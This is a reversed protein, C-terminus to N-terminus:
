HPLGFVFYGACMLALVVGGPHISRWKGCAVKMVPHLILGKTLSPEIKKKDTEHLHTSILLPLWRRERYHNWLEDDTPEKIEKVLTKARELRARGWDIVFQRDAKEFQEYQLGLQWALRNQAFPAGNRDLIMGRPAPISLTITRADKRNTISADNASGGVPKDPM